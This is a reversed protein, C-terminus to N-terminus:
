RRPRPRQRRGAGGKQNHFHMTGRTCGPVVCYRKKPPPPPPMTVDQEEEEDDNDDSSETTSSSSSETSSSSSETTSTESESSSEAPEAKTTDVSVQAEEEEEPDEKLTEDDESYEDRQQGPAKVTSLFYYRVPRPERAWEGWLYGKKTKGVLLVLTRHTFVKVEGEVSKDFDDLEDVWRVYYKGYQMKGFSTKDNIDLKQGDEDKGTITVVDAKAANLCHEEASLISPCVYEARLMMPLKAIEGKKPADYHGVTYHNM